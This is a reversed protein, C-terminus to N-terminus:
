CKTLTSVTYAFETKNINHAIERSIIIEVTALPMSYAIAMCQVKKLSM